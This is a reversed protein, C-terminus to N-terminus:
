LAENESIHGGDSDEDNLFLEISRFAYLTGNAQLFCHGLDLDMWWDGNKDACRVVRTMRSKRTEDRIQQHDGLRIGWSEKQLRRRQKDTMSSPDIQDPKLQLFFHFRGLDRLAGLLVPMQPTENDKTSEPAAAEEDHLCLALQQKEPVTLGNHVDSQLSIVATGDDTSPPRPADRFSPPLETDQTDDTTRRRKPLKKHYSKKSKSKRKRDILHQTEAHKPTKASRHLRNPIELAFKQIMSWETTWYTQNSVGLRDLEAVIARNRDELSMAVSLNDGLHRLHAWATCASDGNSLETTAASEPVDEEDAAAINPSQSLDTASQSETLPTSDFLNEREVLSSAIERVRRAGDHLGGQELHKAWCDALRDCAQLATPFADESLELVVSAPATPQQQQQISKALTSLATERLTRRAWVVLSAQAAAAAKELVPDNPPQM